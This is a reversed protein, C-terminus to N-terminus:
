RTEATEILSDPTQFGIILWSTFGAQEASRRGVKAWFSRQTPRARRAAGITGFIVGAPRNWTWPRLARQSRATSSPLRTTKEHEGRSQRLIPRRTQNKTCTSTRPPGRRNQPPEPCESRGFIWAFGLRVDGALNGKTLPSGSVPPRGSRCDASLWAPGWCPNGPM